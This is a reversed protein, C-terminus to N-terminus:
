IMVYRKINLIGRHNSEPCHVTAAHNISHTCNFLLGIVRHRLRLGMPIKIDNKGSIVFCIYFRFSAAPSKLAPPSFKCLM